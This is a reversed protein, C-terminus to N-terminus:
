TWTFSTMTDQTQGSIERSNSTDLIRRCSGDHASAQVVKVKNRKIGKIKAGQKWLRM